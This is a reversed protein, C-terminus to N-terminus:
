QRSRAGISENTRRRDGNIEEVCLKRTNQLAPVENDSRYNVDLREMCIVHADLSYLGGRARLLPYTM